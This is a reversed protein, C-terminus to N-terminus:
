SNAWKKLLVLLYILVLPSVAEISAGGIRFLGNWPWPLSSPWDGRLQNAAALALFMCCVTFKPWVPKLTETQPTEM